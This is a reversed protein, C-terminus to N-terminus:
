SFQLNIFFFILNAKIPLHQLIFLKDVVHHVLGLSNNGLSQPDWACFREPSAPHSNSPALFNEWYSAQINVRMTKARSWHRGAQGHEEKAWADHPCSM